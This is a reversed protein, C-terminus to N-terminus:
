RYIQYIYIHIISSFVCVSEREFLVNSHKDSMASQFHAKALDRENILNLFFFFCFYVSRAYKLKLNKYNATFHLDKENFKYHRFFYLKNGKKM